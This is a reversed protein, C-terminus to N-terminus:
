EAMKDTEGFKPTLIRRLLSQIRRRKFQERQLSRKILNLTQSDDEKGDTDTESEEGESEESSSSAESVYGAPQEKFSLAKREAPEKSEECIRQFSAGTLLGTRNLDWPYILSSQQTLPNKVSVLTPLTGSMKIVPQQTYVTGGWKWYSKYILPIQVNENYDAPVFPGSRAIKQAESAQMVWRQPAMHSKGSTIDAETMKPWFFEIWCVFGPNSQLQSTSVTNFDMNRNQGYFSLWYPLDLAWPVTVWTSGSSPNINAGIYAVKVYNNTGTDIYPCYTIQQDPTSGSLNSADKVTINLIPLAGDKSKNFWRRWDVLTVGWMFLPFNYWDSQYKWQSTINAPPRITVKKTKTNLSYKQDRVFVANKYVLLNTPHARLYDQPQYIGVDTDWWFIYNIDRMPQLYWKTKYYRALDFGDNTHSWYNHYLRHENWLFKLSFTRLCVGGGVLYKNAVNKDWWTNFTRNATYLQQTTVGVTFGTVVCWATNVPNWM